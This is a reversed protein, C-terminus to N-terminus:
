FITLYLQEYSRVPTLIDPEKGRKNYTLNDKKHEKACAESGGSELMISAM